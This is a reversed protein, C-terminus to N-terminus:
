GEAAKKLHPKVLFEEWTMERKLVKLAEFDKDDLALFIRKVM